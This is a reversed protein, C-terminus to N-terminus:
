LIVGLIKIKEEPTLRNDDIIEKIVRLIRNYYEFILERDM